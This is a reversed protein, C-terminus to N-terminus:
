STHPFFNLLYVVCRRNGEELPRPRGSRWPEEGQASHLYSKDSFGDMFEFRKSGKDVESLPTSDVIGLWILRTKDLRINAVEEILIQADIFEERSSIRAPIPDATFEACVDQAKNIGHVGKSYDNEFVLTYNAWHFVKLKGFALHFLSLFILLM